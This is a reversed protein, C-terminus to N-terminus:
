APDDFRSSLAGIRATMTELRRRITEHMTAALEPYEELVRRLTTRNLRLVSAPGDVVKATGPRTTTAILSLEGLVADRGLMDEHRDARAKLAITGSRVVYASDSNAGERFLEQGEALDIVESAFALIRLQEANLSSLLPIQSLAAIDDQLAM